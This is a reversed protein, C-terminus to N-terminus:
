LGESWSGDTNCIDKNIQSCKEARQPVFCLKGVIWRPWVQFWSSGWPAGVQKPSSHYKCLLVQTHLTETAAPTNISRPEKIMLEYQFRRMIKNKNWILKNLYFEHVMLQICKLTSNAWYWGVGTVGKYSDGQWHESSITELRSETVM